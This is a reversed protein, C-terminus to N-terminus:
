KTEGWPTATRRPTLIRRSATRTSRPSSRIGSPVPDRVPSYDGAISSTRRELPGDETSTVDSRRDPNSVRPSLLVAPRRDTRVSADRRPTDDPKAGGALSRKSEAGVEDSNRAVGRRDLPIVRSPGRDFPHSGSQDPSFSLRFDSVFTRAVATAFSSPSRRPSTEAPTTTGRVAIRTTRTSPPEGHNM